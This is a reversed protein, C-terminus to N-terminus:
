TETEDVAAAAESDVEDDGETLNRRRRRKPPGESDKVDTVEDASADAEAADAEKNDEIKAPWIDEDCPM